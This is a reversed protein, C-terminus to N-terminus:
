LPVQQQRSLCACVKDVMYDRIFFALALAFAAPIYTVILVTWLSADCLVELVIIPDRATFKIPKHGRLDYAADSDNMSLSVSDHPLLVRGGYVNPAQTYKVGQMEAM